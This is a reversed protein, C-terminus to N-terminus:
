EDQRAIRYGRDCIGDVHITYPQYLHDILYALQPRPCSIALLDCDIEAIDIESV